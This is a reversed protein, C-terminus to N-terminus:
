EETRLRNFLAEYYFGRQDQRIPVIFMEFAGMADHNFRYIAQPLFSDLPGRFVLSFSENEPLSRLEETEVLEVSVRDENGFVVHFPTHLHQTFAEYALSASM